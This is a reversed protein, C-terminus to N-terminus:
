CIGAHEGISLLGNPHDPFESPGTRLPRQERRRALLGLGMFGSLWLALSTAEPVAILNPQVLTHAGAANSTTLSVSYTGAAVYQHTPNQSNSTEGDGFDWNWSTALPTSLDTFIVDLPPSGSEASASFDSSPTAPSPPGGLQGHVEQGAREGSQLAGPVTSPATNHTAEGAFYLESGVPQALVERMTTGGPRTGPAPFSYSGRIYPDASWNSVVGEIFSPAALGAFVQDLDNLAQNLRAADNPLAEMFDSNEGMIFCTLVHDATGVQYKGPNWCQATPGETIVDMMKAENWFANNFRLSIKMGKGMGITNYASVKAAPLDPIFDIMEAQLVGISVTMIIASAYHYVGNADLAVPKPGATDVVTVPSNYVVNPVLSGFYLADLADRYGVPALGYLRESLSWANGERSLSRLGLLTVTTGYEGAPSAAQYLHYARNTPGVGLVNALYTSVLPDTPDNDHTWVDSSFAWYKDIDADLYCDGTDVWCTSGGDMSILQDQTSGGKFIRVQAGTGYAARIDNFVFNNQSGYLEEAGNEVRVDGLMQSGIRGGHEHRAEVVLVDYGLNELTYAAYLGAAGAGVIVVDHDTFPAVAGSPLPCLLIMLTLASLRGWNAIRIRLTKPRVLGFMNEM